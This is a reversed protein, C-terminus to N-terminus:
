RVFNQAEQLDLMGSQVKTKDIKKWSKEFKKGKALFARAKGEAGDDSVDYGEWKAVVDEM